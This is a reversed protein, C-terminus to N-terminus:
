VGQGKLCIDVDTQFRSICRGQGQKFFGYIWLSNGVRKMLHHDDIPFVGVNFNGRIEDISFIKGVGM